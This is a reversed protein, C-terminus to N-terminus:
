QGTPTWIWFGFEGPEAEYGIEMPLVVYDSWSNEEPALINDKQEFHTYYRGTTIVMSYDKEMMAEEFNKLYPKVRAMSMEMLVMKEYDTVLENVRLDGFVLLHRYNIMLVPKGTREAVTIRTQLQELDPYEFTTPKAGRAFVATYIIPVIVLLLFAQKYAGSLSISSMRFFDQRLAIISVLLFLLFLDMNHLNFTGGIRMSIIVGLGALFILIAWIMLYALTTEKIKNITVQLLLLLGIFTVVGTGLFIGLSYIENPLLRMPLFPYNFNSSLYPIPNHTLRLYVISTALSTTLGAVVWYVALRLSAASIRRRDKIADLCLLLVAMLGPFLFWNVRSLGALVSCIIVAGLSQRMKQLDFTLFFLGSIMLVHPYVPGQQLFVAIFLFVLLGDTGFNKKCYRSISWTSFGVAIAWLLFEWARFRLLSREDLLFILSQMFSRLPDLMPLPIHQGFIKQSFFGAAEYIQSFESDYNPGPSRRVFSFKLIGLYILQAGLLWRAIVQLVPKNSDTLLKM